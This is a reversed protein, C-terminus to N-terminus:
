EFGDTFIMDPIPAPLAAIGSRDLTGVRGFNGAIVLREARDSALARVADDSGPNWDPDVIASGSTSLKAIRNRPLGGLSTFEGGAYVAGDPNVLVASVGGNAQANWNPDAIGTTPDLRALFAHNQGGITLFDGGVIVNGQADRAFSRVGAAPWPNWTPDASGSATSIRAAYRRPQGGIATFYGGVFLQDPGDAAIAYVGSNANATWSADAVLYGLPSRIARNIGQLHGIYLNGAGDLALAYPVSPVSVSSHRTGDPLIEVVGAVGPAVYVSGGADTALANVPVDFEVTAWGPDIAGNPQLRLINKRRIGNVDIFQGGIVLGGDSLRVMANVIPPMTLPPAPPLTEDLAIVAHGVRHQSGFRELYGGIRVDGNPMAAMLRVYSSPSTAWSRTLSGTTATRKQVIANNRRPIVYLADNGAVAIADVLPSSGTWQPDASGTGATSLKALGVRTQGGMREFSGGVYLASRDATLGMGVLTVPYQAAPPSPDWNADAQGTIRSLKALGNRVRGSIYGFSGGVFLTADDAAALLTPPSQPLPLWTADAIGTTATLKALLPIAQGGITQFDGSVFLKGADDLALAAVYSGDPAPNWSTDLSGDPLLRALNNRPHGDVTSFVGGLYIM